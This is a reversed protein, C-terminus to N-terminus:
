LFSVAVEGPNLTREIRRVTSEEGDEAATAFATGRDKDWTM